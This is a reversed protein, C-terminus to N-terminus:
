VSIKTDLWVDFSRLVTRDSRADSVNFAKIRVM